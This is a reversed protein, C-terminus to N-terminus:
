AATASRTHVLAGLSMAPPALAATLVAIALVQHAISLVIPESLMLTAAGLVAQLTLLASLAAAQGYPRRRLVASALWLLAAALLLLSLVRHAAQIFYGNELVNRWFPHFAFLRDPGPLVGDTYFPFSRWQAGADMAETLAGFAINLMVAIAWAIRWLLAGGQGAPLVSVLLWALGLSAFTVDLAHRHQGINIGAFLGAHDAFQRLVLYIGLGACLSLVRARWPEAPGTAVERLALGCLLLALLSFAVLSAIRFWEWGYLLQYVTLSEMGGVQYGGCLAFLPSQQHIAFAQQWAARGLPPILSVDPIYLFLPGRTLRNGGGLVFLALGAIAIAGLLGRHGARSAGGRRALRPRLAVSAPSSSLAGAGADRLPLTTM